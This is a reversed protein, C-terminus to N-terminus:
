SDTAGGGEPLGIKNEQRRCGSQSEGRKWDNRCCRGGLLGGGRESTDGGGGRSNRQRESRGVACGGGSLPRMSNLFFIEVRRM